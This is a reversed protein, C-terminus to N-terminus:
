SWELRFGMYALSMIRSSYGLRKRLESQRLKIKKGKLYELAGIVKQIKDFENETRRRSNKFKDLGVDLAEAPPCCDQIKRELEAMKTEFLQKLEPAADGIIREKQKINFALYSRTSEGSQHGLFDQIWSEYARDRPKGYVLYSCNVAIGRCSYATMKNAPALPQIHETFAANLAESVRAAIKKESGRINLGNRIDDVLDVITPGDLAILMRTVEVNKLVTSGLKGKALGRILIENPTDTSKFQSVKFMEIPRCATCLMVAIAKGYVDNSRALENIKAIIDEVYIPQLQDRNKNREKVKAVYEAKRQLSREQSIGMKYVSERYVASEKGYKKFIDARLETFVNESSSENTYIGKILKDVEAFLRFWIRSPKDNRVTSYQIVNKWINMLKSKITKFKKVEPYAEVLIANMHKNDKMRKGEIEGRVVDMDISQITRIFKNM